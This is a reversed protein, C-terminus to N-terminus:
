AGDDEGDEKVDETSKMLAAFAEAEADDYQQRQDPTPEEEATVTEWIKKGADVIDKGGEIMQPALKFAELILPLVSAVMGM